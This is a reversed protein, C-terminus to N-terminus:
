ASRGNVWHYMPVIIKEYSKVLLLSLVIIVIIIFIVIIVAGIM